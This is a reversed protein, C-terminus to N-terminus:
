LQDRREKEESFQKCDVCETATPRAELRRVGIEADCSSCFGYNNENIAQIMQDIKGILKRERDRTRLELSREEEQSARDMLDAFVEVDDQLHHVTRDAEEMLQKRWRELITRFHALQKANMYEEGATEQYADVGLFNKEVPQKKDM